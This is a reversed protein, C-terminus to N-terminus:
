AFTVSIQVYRGAISPKSRTRICQSVVGADLDPCFDAGGAFATAAGAGFAAAGVGFDLGAAAFALAAGALGTGALAAFTVLGALGVFAAFFSTGFAALFGSLDRLALPARLFHPGTGNM